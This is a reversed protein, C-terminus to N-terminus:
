GTNETKWLYPGRVQGARWSRQGGHHDFQHEREEVPIPREGSRGEMVETRWPPRGPTRQRGCNHYECRVYEEHGTNETKWL